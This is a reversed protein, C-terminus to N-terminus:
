NDSVHHPIGSSMSYYNQLILALNKENYKLYQNDSLLIMVIRFNWKNLLRRVLLMLSLSKNHQEIQEFIGWNKQEIQEIDQFFPVGSEPPMKKLADVDIYDKIADSILFKLYQIKSDVVTFVENLLDENSEIAQKAKAQAEM